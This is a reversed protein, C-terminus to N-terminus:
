APQNWLTDLDGERATTDIGLGLLGNLWALPEVRSSEKLDPWKGTIDIRIVNKLLDISLVPPMLMKKFFKSDIVKTGCTMNFEGDFTIDGFLKASMSSSEFLAYDIDINRDAVSFYIDALEFVPVKLDSNVSSVGKDVSRFLPTQRLDCDKFHLYGGGKVTGIFDTISSVCYINGTLSGKTRAVKPHLKSFEELDISDVNLQAGWRKLDCRLLGSIRGYNGVVIGAVTIAVVGISTLAFDVFFLIFMLAMTLGYAFKEIKFREIINIWLIGAIAGLLLSFAFSYLSNISEL